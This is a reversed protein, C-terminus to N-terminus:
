KVLFSILKLCCDNIDKTNYKVTIIGREYYVVEWSDENKIICYSDDQLLGLNYYYKPVGHNGLTRETKKFIESIDAM